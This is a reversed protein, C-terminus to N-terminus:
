TNNTKEKTMKLSINIHLPMCRFSFFNFTEYTGTCIAVMPVTTGSRVERGYWKMLGVFLFICTEDFGDAVKVGMPIPNDARVPRGYWKTLLVEIKKLLSVTHKAVAWVHLYSRVM